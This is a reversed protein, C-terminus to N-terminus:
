QFIVKSNTSGLEISVLRSGGDASSVMIATHSFKRDATELKAAADIQRGNQDTLVVESGNLKIKYEGPKLQVAGAQASNSLTFTFTKAGVLAVCVVMLIAIRKFMDNEKNCVQSSAEVIGAPLAYRFQSRM